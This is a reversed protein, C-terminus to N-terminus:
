PLTKTINVFSSRITDKSEILGGVSLGNSVM